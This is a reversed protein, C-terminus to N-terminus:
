SGQGWYAEMAREYVAGLTGFSQSADLMQADSQRARAKEMAKVALYDGIPAPIGIVPASPTLNPPHSQFILELTGAGDPPPYVRIFQLGLFDAVWRTVPGSMADEWNGDLAEMEKVTSSKLAQGNASAFITAIHHFPLPYLAQEAILASSDDFEAILLFRGGIDHLAEEAYQYLEAETWFILSALDAANLSQCIWPMLASFDYTGGPLTTATANANIWAVVDSWDM